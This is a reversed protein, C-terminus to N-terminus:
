LMRLTKKIVHGLWYFLQFYFGFAHTCPVTCFSFSVHNNQFKSLHQPVRHSLMLWWSRCRQLVWSCTYNRFWTCSCTAAMRLGWRHTARCTAAAACALVPISGLQGPGALVVLTGFLVAFVLGFLRCGGIPQDTQIYLINQLHCWWPQRDTNKFPSTALTAPWFDSVLVCTLINTKNSQVLVAGLWYHYKSFQCEYNHAQGDKHRQNM